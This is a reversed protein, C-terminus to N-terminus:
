GLYFLLSTLASFFIITPLVQFLFIFGFSEVNMMGGLLFESGAQTFQLIKVFIKGVFEFIAQVFPVKLVGIALALQAILGIGVTKWNIAKRNKSLLFSILILAFMGLAGRLLSTMSFGESPIITSTSAETLSSTTKSKEFKLFYSLDKNTLVLTSDTFTNIKFTKVIEFPQDYYFILLNNQHIYNGSAQLSDKAKLFFSFEGKNFEIADSTADINYLS